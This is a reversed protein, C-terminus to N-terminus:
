SVIFFSTAGDITDGTRRLGVGLAPERGVSLYFLKNREHYV